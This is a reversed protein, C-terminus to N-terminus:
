ADDGGKCISNNCMKGANVIIKQVNKRITNLQSECKEVSSWSGYVRYTKGNIEITKFARVKYYYNKKKTVKFTTSKAATSNVRKALKYGKTRKSSKYVEYGSEGNINKWSVKVKTSGTKKVEPKNLKKLTYIAESSKTSGAYAYSTTSLAGTLM